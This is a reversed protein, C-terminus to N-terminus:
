KTKRVGNKDVEYGDIKASRALSGDTYFYYWKGDIELWKGSIMLGDKTFYYTKNNGNAGLDWFGVLMTKGSYFRWNDGDKVWGTKLTGDTNFFYKVGDITQTGTLAKGDKYYLYQGADNQAWGQATAPNITLKIYRGLMSSVEARTANGKPNFKNDSGGMMIGAQQMAKVADKYASGIVSADAYVSAERTIPLTYCTAKAYNAFIVAIEERTIARDPAFQSNGIGQIIGKSYAWEIYPRYASDAKVDTFSNKTYAKTDVGALRGLATVLMGRTMASNPAFATESNGSMLGRGVVYDISEKAWHTSIDTFKATPATYGIGYQSFHTTTFIVCGSNADYASGAIRTANGKADVYVAYLGGVAENKGLTYPISVTAIGGGFSSVTKGSGYGVTIDYVPRTGIMKKAANSLNTKPAIAININGTSQKQIEVLAKKDFSVQVLSGNIELSSVGARVLSDLSSRTLTATLSAAGKPMTVDLAVTIGNATKSQAKAEAQAKAIADTVAKDPISASAAGNTGATATVPTTATVPQNPTKEPITSTSGSGSSGGSSSDGGSHPAAPTGVASAETSNGIGNVARLKLTYATGNTLGTVTYTTVLGIDTWSTGNDTSVQYKTITSGSDFPATWNLVIQGSSATARFNSPAEPATAYVVKEATITGSYNGTGTVQVSITKGLDNQTIIYTGGTAGSIATGNRLWVIATTADSPTLSATNLTLTDGLATTGDISVSGGLPIRGIEVTGSELTGAYNGAATVKVSVLSGITDIGSGAVTYTQNAAGSIAAGNRYWQYSLTAGSPSIGSIAATLTDGEDIRGADGGGQTVDVSVTGDIQKATINATADVTGFLTYNNARETSNLVPTVTVTKGTGVNASDFMGTATYDTGLVLSEGDVLGSFVVATVAAIANGDYEKNTATASAFGLLKTTINVTVDTPQTLTYNGAATGTLACGTITVAKNEGANADATTGAGLTFSLNAADADAVGSLSGGTLAVATTGDYPRPPAIVGTISVSKSAITFDGLSIGAAANYATGATVDATVAYTGVNTPATTAGDYKLTLTGAGSPAIVPLPQATGNYPKTRDSADITFDAATLDQKNVALTVSAKNNPNSVSAATVTINGTFGAPINFTGSGDAMSIETLTSTDTGQQWKVTINPDTWSEMGAVTVTVTQATINALATYASGSDSIDTGSLTVSLADTSLNLLYRDPAGSQGAINKLTPLKGDALTWIGSNWASTDWNAATTWFSGGFLTASTLDAGDKVNLGKNNWTGSIGSYAHNSKLTGGSEVSGVVRGVSSTGSISPNLAACNQVKSSYVRGVVGGVNTSGSVSGSSYCYQVKASFTAVQGAVGGVDNKGSVSGTSYCNQVTGFIFGAVGGVQNGAGSVSATSYCNEVTGPAYGVVGGITNTGSVSGTSYGNQVTGGVMGAMGGVYDKGSVSANLIGLNEVRGVTGIYGFLGQYNAAPRNISLGTIQKGNGNFIGAFTAMGYTGIPVWGTNDGNPDIGLLDLNNELRFYKGDFNDGANTLEALKALDNTTRILYPDAESIGGGEFPAAGEAQLYEPMDLATGGLGPLKGATYTWPSNAFVSPFAGATQLAAKDKGEGDIKDGGEALSGKPSGGETVTMGSFAINSTILAGDQRHGTIRGIGHASSTATVGSNLAACNKVTGNQVRGVLGGANVNIGTATVQATAYCNQVTGSNNVYGTVGGVSDNGSISGTVYCNNVTGGVYGAVGGVYGAVGGVYEKGSVSVNVVGLNEVMGGSGIYGFIGQNNSGTRNITLGTLQKGNGNFIGKFSKLSDAGIPVWGEDTAYGSLDLDSILKYYKSNYDTNGANVLESLKALQAATAIQYPNESTGLGPFNPDTGDAIHAPMTDDQVGAAFDALTPLKGASYVWGNAATFLNSLVGGIDAKLVAATTDAGNHNNAAGDTVMSGNVTLGSFAINGSPTGTAINGAVRGAASGGTVSPNLAACNQLTGTVSRGAVGGVYGAGSISGTSYCNQATGGDLRGTVGGVFSTGSVSGTSYCSQVRGGGVIDGAVGGVYDGTGTVSGTSYCSQVTIGFVRGTVGGVNSTGSVSGTNYCNKMTGSSNNVQGAVGGVNSTGSVNGTVYCSQVTSSDVYGAVAGVYDGTVTISANVVGLNQVSGGEIFGFLGQVDQSRNITLGTIVHNDGDFSGKFRKSFNGIPTWGGGAKYGSLDIDNDLKLYVKGSATGLFITELQGANTLTAIEALQAASGILFPDTDTAGGGFSRAFMQFKPAEARVVVAIHPLEAATSFGEALRATFLYLGKTDGDYASEAEWTVPAQVAEGEAIASLTKPLNLQEQATGFEVSQWRIEDALADFATVVGTPTGVTVTIVPTEASVAFDKIEATFIYVGVTGGDYEPSSTWEALVPIDIDMFSSEEADSPTDEQPEDDAPTSADEGDANGSSEESEQADSPTGEQPEDDAPASVDEGDADDSAEDGKQMDADDEQVPEGSDLVPEDPETEDIAAAVRVTANLSQPLNLDELSTGLAVQQTTIEESLAEFAIIEDTVGNSETTQAAVSVPTMGFVMLMSLALATLRRAPKHTNM